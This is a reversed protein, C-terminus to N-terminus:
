LRFLDLTNPLEFLRVDISTITCFGQSVGDEGWAAKALQVADLHPLM